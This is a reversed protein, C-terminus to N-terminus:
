EDWLSFSHTSHMDSGSKRPAASQSVSDQTDTAANTPTTRDDNLGDQLPTHSDTSAQPMDDMPLLASLPVPALAAQAATELVSEPANGSDTTQGDDRCEQSHLSATHNAQSGIQTNM